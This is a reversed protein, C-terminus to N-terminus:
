KAPVSSLRNGITVYLWHLSMSLVTLVTLVTLVAVGCCRLKCQPTM